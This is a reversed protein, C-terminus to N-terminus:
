LTKFYDRFDVSNNLNCVKKMKRKEFVHLSDTKDVKTMYAANEVIYLTPPLHLCLEVLTFPM